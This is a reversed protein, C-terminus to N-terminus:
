SLEFYFRRGEASQWIIAVPIYPDFVALHFFDVEVTAVVTASIGPEFERVPKM